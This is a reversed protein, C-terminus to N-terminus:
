GRGTRSAAFAHPRLSPEFAARQPQDPDLDRYPHPSPVRPAPRPAESRQPRYDLLFPLEVRRSHQRAVSGQADSASGRSSGSLAPSEAAAAPVGLGCVFAGLAVIRFTSLIM